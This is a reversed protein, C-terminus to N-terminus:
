QSFYLHINYLSLVVVSALMAYRVLGVQKKTPHSELKTPLLLTALPTSTTTISSSDCSQTSLSSDLTEDHDDNCTDLVPGRELDDNGNNDANDDIANGNDANADKASGDIASVNNASVDYANADNANGDNASVDYANADNANGDNASVDNASADNASVASVIGDNANVNDDDASVDNAHANASVDDANDNDDILIENDHNMKAHDEKQQQQQQQQQQHQEESRTKVWAMTEELAKHSSLFQEMLWTNVIQTANPFSSHKQIVRTDSDDNDDNEDDDHNHNNKRRRKRKKQEKENTEKQVHNNDVMEVVNQMNQHIQVSHHIRTKSHSLEVIYWHGCYTYQSPSHTSAYLNSSHDHQQQQHHQEPVIPETWSTFSRLEPDYYHKLIFTESIATDTGRDFADTSTSTADTGTTTIMSINVQLHTFIIQSGNPLTLNHKTQSRQSAVATKGNMQISMINNNNNDKNNHLSDVNLIHDWVMNSPAYIDQIVMNMHIVNNNNCLKVQNNNSLSAQGEV